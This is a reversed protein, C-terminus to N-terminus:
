VSIFLKPLDITFEIIVANITKLSEIGTIINNIEKNNNSIGSQNFIVM